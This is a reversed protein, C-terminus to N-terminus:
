TSLTQPTYFAGFLKKAKVEYARGAEEATKFYGIQERKGEVYIRAVWRSRRKLWTVGRFGSTNNSRLGCNMVNESRTAERLNGIRNNAKNRDVHDLDNKPFYGYVYLWALTHSYYATGFLRLKRYGESNIWGAIDGIKVTPGSVVKRTFAGTDPDYHLHKKLIEQTLM